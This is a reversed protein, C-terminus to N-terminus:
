TFVFKQHRPLTGWPWFSKPWHRPWQQLSKLVLFFNHPLRLFAKHYFINEGLLIVFNSDNVIIRSNSVQNGASGSCLLPPTLLITLYRCIANSEILRIKRRRESLNWLRRGATVGTYLLRKAPESIM